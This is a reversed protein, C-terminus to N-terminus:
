VCVCVGRLVAHILTHPQKVGDAVIPPKLIGGDDEEEVLLVEKGLLDDLRGECEAEWLVSTLSM